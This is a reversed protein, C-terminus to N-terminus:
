KGTITHGILFLNAAAYALWMGGFWPKGTFYLALAIWVYLLAGIVMPKVPDAAWTIIAMM